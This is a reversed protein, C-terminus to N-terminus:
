TEICTSVCYLSQVEVTSIVFTLLIQVSAYSGALGIWVKGM